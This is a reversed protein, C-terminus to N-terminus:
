KIKQVAKEREIQAKRGKIAVFIMLFIFMGIVFLRKIKFEQQVTM